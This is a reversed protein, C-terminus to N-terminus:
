GIKKNGSREVESLVTDIFDSYERGHLRLHQVHSSSPFHKSMVKVGRRCRERAFEEIKISDAIDDECSYIFAQTHCTADEVLAEWFSEGFTPKGTMRSLAVLVYMRFTFLIALPIGVFPIPILNKIVNFCSRRDIYCPASDFVQCGGKLRTCFLELDGRAGPNSDLPAALMHGIRSGVFAGGNSLIHMVLPTAGDPPVIPHAADDERLVKAVERIADRAFADIGDHDVFLSRNSATGSVTSCGKRNYLEAYKEVHRPKAGGFGLVLVVARPRSVADAIVGVM